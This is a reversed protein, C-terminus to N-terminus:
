DFLRAGQQDILMRAKALSAAAAAEASELTDARIMRHTKQEGDVEKEIVAGIRWKGGESVPAPTITFGEYDEAPGAAPPTDDAERRGFLRSLLSM